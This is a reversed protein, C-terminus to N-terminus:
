EEVTALRALARSVTVRISPAAARVLWGTRPRPEIAMTYTVICRAPDDVHPVVRVAEAMSAVIRRSVATFTFAFLRGDEWAIFQEDIVVSGAIARRTGGVGTRAGTVEISRLGRFWRPWGEHDAIRGFAADAPLDIIRATEIVVPADRMWDLDRRPVEHMVPSRKSRTM